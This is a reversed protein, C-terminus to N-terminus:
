PCPSGLAVCGRYENGGRCCVMTPACGHTACDSACTKAANGSGPCQGSCFQNQCCTVGPGPNPCSPPGTDIPAADVIDSDVGADTAPTSGDAVSADAGGGDGVSTGDPVFTVEPLTGCGVALVTLAILKRM